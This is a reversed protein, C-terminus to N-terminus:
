AFFGTLDDCCLLFSDHSASYLFLDGQKVYLIVDSELMDDEAWKYAAYRTQFHLYACKGDAKRVYLMIPAEIPEDQVYETESEQGAGDKDPFVDARSVLATLADADFEDDNQLASYLCIDGKSVVLIEDDEFMEDEMWHFVQSPSTFSISTRRGNCDRVLVVLPLNAVERLDATHNFEKNDIYM